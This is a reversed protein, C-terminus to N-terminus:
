GHGKRRWLMNGASFLLTGHVSSAGFPSRFDAQSCLFLVPISMDRGAVGCQIRDRGVQFEQAAKAASLVM